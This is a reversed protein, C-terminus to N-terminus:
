EPIAVQLLRVRGGEVLLGRGPPYDSRRSRPFDTKYVITGDGQEPQLALGTRGSKVANLLPWGGGLASTEAEAIVVHGLRTLTKIMAALPADAPTTLFENVAEIVVAYRQGGEGSGAAAQEIKAAVGAVEAPDTAIQQWIGLSALPSRRGGFFVPVVGPAARDLAIMATAAATTRGSAPPGSILFVGEPNFGVPGLTDDAVGIAPHGGATVPLESLRVIEPLQEVRPADSVQQRRMAATLQSIAQAQATSSTAGGFVAVQFEARGLLGRGPPSDLTLAGAEAGAMFYDNDDALRLVLRRQVRSSFRSPLSAPRDATLILHIGLPRGDAALNALADFWRGGDASEYQQRFAAFGDLLIIIRPEGPASAVRRYETITGARVATYRRARDDATALLSRMLRRVRDGEDAAIVAGVHPLDALMDLGRSSFDLCYVQCPGGRATLAAAIALSRLATSKGAGGTGFIALNGEHDPYFAAVSQRQQDPEDIVGFVLEDDRRRIPLRALDYVHALEDLWPRRPAPLQALEAARRISDTVRAIDSRGQRQDAPRAASDPLLWTRGEGIVLEEVTVDPDRKDADTWGGVYGAQFPVLRGPGTKSVARGPLAPDFHAAEPSGLVDASDSEDAMRLALRLNTNARLNDKIVGAPRQTALVLHLGLSRGRQAVNVVGDVFEPVEHVLAAFEDVVIVLSPPTEPDGTKELEQLDKVHKAAFLRERYTLEAGLSRLARRVLHPSLDTVLGVTHPLHVCERFASGGKYDVLLFTVRQPSHAAAMALIWTQLLESKGSGTTGGVLAHPGHLRLDLAHPGDAAAGVIARLTGPRRSGGPPAAPAAPGTIISTSEQWREIIARPDDAIRPDNLELWSVSHPLDSDDAVVAGADVLPAMARAFRAATAEDMGDAAIGATSTSTISDGVSVSRDGRVDVYATCAAPLHEARQALWVCYVGAAQGIRSLEVLRARDGPTRGDIFVIVAAGTDAAGSRRARVLDELQALLLVSEPGAVLHPGSIPSHASSTHPLWKLWNWDTASRGGCFAAVVVEAPSHLAALQCLVARSVDLAAVPEGAIGVAGHETLSLTFPVDRIARYSSLLNDLEAQAAPVARRNRQTEFRLRSDLTAAGVRIDLFRPAGPRRSWLLTSRRAAADLCQVTPPHEANRARWEAAHAGDAAQRLEGFERRLAAMSGKTGRSANMRGEVVNAVMMLPSLAVFLLMAPTRTVAFLVGGLVLPALMPLLQFRPPREAEPLEPTELEQGAYSGTIVPSRNFAATAAHGPGAALPAGAFEIGLVTDGIGLRDGPLWSGRTVPGDNLTIGNASGLDLIEASGPALFLRVHRRSVLTDSLVLDCGNGRGITINGAPLPVRQGADPGQLVTVQAVLRAARDAYRDGAPAVTVRDGSKIGSDAAPLAPDLTVRQGDLVTLTVTGAPVAAGSGGPLRSVSPGQGDPDRVTLATAVDGVTADAAATVVLDTAGQPRELTIKLKM